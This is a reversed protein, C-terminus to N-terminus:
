TLGGLIELSHYESQNLPHSGGAPLLGCALITTASLLSTVGLCVTATPPSRMTLLRLPAPCTVLAPFSYGGTLAM